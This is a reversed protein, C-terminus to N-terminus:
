STTFYKVCGYIIPINCTPPAYAQTPTHTNIHIHTPTLSPVFAACQKLRIHIRRHIYIYIYIYRNIAISNHHVTYINYATPRLAIFIPLFNLERKTVRSVQAFFHILQKFWSILNWKLKSYAIQLILNRTLSFLPVIIRIGNVTWYALYLVMSVELVIISLFNDLSTFSM